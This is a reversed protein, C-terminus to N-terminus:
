AKVKRRYIQGGLYLATGASLFTEAWPFPPSGSVCNVVSLASTTGILGLGWAEADNIRDDFDIWKYIIVAVLALHAILTM